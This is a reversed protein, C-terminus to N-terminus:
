TITDCEDFIMCNDVNKIFLLRDISGKREKKGKKFMSATESKWM